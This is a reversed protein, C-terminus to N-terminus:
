LGIDQHLKLEDILDFVIKIEQFITSIAKSDIPQDLIKFEFLNNMCPAAIIIKKNHFSCQVISTRNALPIPQFKRSFSPFINGILTIPFKFLWGFLIVIINSSYQNHKKYLSAFRYLRDMFTPTLLYRAEIQDTSYVRFIKNFEPDELKTLKLGRLQYKIKYYFNFFLNSSYTIVTNGNFKKKCEITTLYGHFIPIQYKESYFKTIELEALHYNTNKYIGVINDETTLHYKRRYKKEFFDFRSLLGVLSPFLLSNLLSNRNVEAYELLKCEPIFDIIQPLLIQKLNNNFFASPIFTWYLLASTIFIIYFAINSFHIYDFFTTSNAILFNGVKSFSATSGVVAGLLTTIICFICVSAILRFRVKKFIIKRQEEIKKFEDSLNEQFYLAFGRDIESTEQYIFTAKHSNNRNLLLNLITSIIHM